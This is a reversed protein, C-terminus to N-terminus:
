SRRQVVIISGGNQPRRPYAIAAIFLTMHRGRAMALFAGAIGTRSGSQYIQQEAYIRSHIGKIMLSANTVMTM